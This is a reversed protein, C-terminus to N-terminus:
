ICCYTTKQCIQLGRCLNNYYSQKCKSNADVIDCVKDIKIDEDFVNCWQYDIRFLYVDKRINDYQNYSHKSIISKRNNSKCLQEGLWINM